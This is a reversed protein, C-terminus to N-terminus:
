VQEAPLTLKSLLHNLYDIRKLARGDPKNAKLQQIRLEIRERILPILTAKQRGFLVEIPIEFLLHYGLLTFIDPKREGQEWRSVLSKDKVDLIFILDDQTLQSKNRYWRLYNHKIFM